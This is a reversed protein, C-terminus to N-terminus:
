KGIKGDVINYTTAEKLQLVPIESFINVLYMQLITNCIKM